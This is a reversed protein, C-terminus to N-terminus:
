RETGKDRSNTGRGSAKVEREKAGPAEPSQSRAERERLAQEEEPSLWRGKMRREWHRGDRTRLTGSTACCGGAGLATRGLDVTIYDADASIEERSCVSFMPYFDTTVVKERKDGGDVVFVECDDLVLRISKEHVTFEFSRGSAPHEDKPEPSCGSLVGLWLFAGM